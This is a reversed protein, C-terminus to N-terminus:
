KAAVLGPAPGTMAHSRWSNETTKAPATMVRVAAKPPEGQGGVVSDSLHLTCAHAGRGGAEIGFYELFARGVLHPPKARMSGIGINVSPERFFVPLLQAHTDTLHLVRTNGFRGVDYLDDDAARGIRPVVGTLAAATLLRLAERRNM